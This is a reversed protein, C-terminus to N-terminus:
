SITSFTTVHKQQFVIYERVVTHLRNTITQSTFYRMIRALLLRISDAGDAVTQTINEQALKVTDM